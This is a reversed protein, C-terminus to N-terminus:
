LCSITIRSCPVRGPGGAPLAAPVPPPDWSLIPPFPREDGGELTDEEARAQLHAGKTWGKLMTEVETEAAEREPKLSDDGVFLFTGQTDKFIHTFLGFFTSSSMKKRSLKQGMEGTGPM